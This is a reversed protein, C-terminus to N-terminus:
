PLEFDLAPDLATLAARFVGAIEALTARDNAEFRLTLVPATNSPRILGWGNPYDVRLGDISTIDGTGFASSAVLQEMIAFKGRETTRLQIEPTSEAAPFQAFLESTTAAEGAVIELLRAASYLGDDFGYWREGFCIHGSFEGGLLAGTEKMKAKLHSHGTKWMIPRGGYEAIVANLHRSCKVDFIVDAGPNRGVIDRSFLMMLRDPWIVAGREDIVGIRDGDGDLAIGLHAGEARVVTQLDELNRPDSPDPHHNPFDGDVDCYLPLVECGIADLLRPLVEGAIGNGCDVVVKLPQALAVDAAVREIYADVVQHETCGGKGSTFRGENIRRHLSRIREDALTEGAIVIKFGNYEPANHSGTVMVGSRPGLTECAFYLLPTPVAGIDIVERGAAQLGAVLAQQLEPSSHRGDRAVIVTTEGADAAESGIARGILRAGDITLTRGVVGRIDYARFIEAALSPAAPTNAGPKAPKRPAPQAAGTPETIDLFGHDASQPAAARAPTTPAGAATRVSPAERGPGPPAGTVILQGLTAGAEAFDDLVYDRAPVPTRNGALANASELLRDMDRAVAQTLHARALLLAGGVILLILLWLPLMLLATTIEANMPVALTLRWDAKALPVSLTTGDAPMVGRAAITVPSGELVQALDVSGTGAPLGEIAGAIPAIDITAMLTGAPPGDARGPVPASVILVPGTETRLAEPGVAGGAEARRIQDLGAFTLPPTESLALEARGLPNLRVRETSPLLAALRREAVALAETDGSRALADVALPSAAARAVAARLEAAAQDIRGAAHAARTEALATRHREDAPAIVLLQTAIAALLVGLLLSVAVLLHGSTLKHAGFPNSGPTRGELVPRARAKRSGTPAARAAAAIAEAGSAAAKGNRGNSKRTRSM